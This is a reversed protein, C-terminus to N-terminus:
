DFDLHDPEVIAALDLQRHPNDVLYGAGIDCLLNAGLRSAAAITRFPAVTGLPALPTLTIGAAEFIFRQFQGFETDSIRLV